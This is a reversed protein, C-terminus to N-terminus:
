GGWRIKREPRKLRPDIFIYGLEVLLNIAIVICIMLFGYGQVVPYDRLLISDLAYKGIGPWSFISEIIVSGGILNVSSHAALTMIPLMINKLAGRIVARKKVGRAIAFATYQKGLEELMNSRVVRILAPSSIIGLTITPLYLRMLSVTHSIEYLKLRVAFLYLLMLSIAFGPLSSLFVCFLRILNDITKNHKLASIIGLGIGLTLQIIIAPITLLLTAPMRKGLEIIVPQNTYFSDGLNFRLVNKMWAVYQVLISDDLHYAERLEQYKEQYVQNNVSAVEPTGLLIRIPDGPALNIIIFLVLTALLLTVGTEVLKNVIRKNRLSM